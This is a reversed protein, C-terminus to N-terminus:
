LTSIATGPPPALGQEVSAVKTNQIWCSYFVEIQYSYARGYIFAFVNSIQM